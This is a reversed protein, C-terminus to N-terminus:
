ILDFVDECIVDVHLMTKPQKSIFRYFLFFIRIKKKKKKGL